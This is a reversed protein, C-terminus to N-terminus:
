RANLGRGIHSLMFICIGLYSIIDKFDPERKGKEGVIEPVNEAFCFARVEANGALGILGRRQRESSLLARARPHASIM